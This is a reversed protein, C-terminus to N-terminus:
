ISCPVYSHHSIRSIIYNSFIESPTQFTIVPTSEQCVFYYITYFLKGEFYERERKDDSALQGGFLSCIKIAEPWTKM